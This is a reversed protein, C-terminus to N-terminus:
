MLCQFVASSTIKDSSLPRFWRHASRILLNIFINLNSCVQATLRREDPPATGRVPQLRQHGERIWTETNKSQSDFDESLSRLEARRAAQLVMRWLQETCSVLQEVDQKRDERLNECLCKAQVKLHVLQSEGDPASKLVGQVCPCTPCQHGVNNWFSYSVSASNLFWLNTNEPLLGMPGM